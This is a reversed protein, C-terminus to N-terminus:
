KIFHPFLLSKTTLHKKKSLEKLQPRFYFWHLLGLGLLTFPIELRTGGSSYVRMLNFNPEFTFKKRAM